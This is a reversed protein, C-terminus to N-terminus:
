VHNCLIAMKVKEKKKCAISNMKMNHEIAFTPNCHPCMYLKGFSREICHLCKDMHHKLNISNNGCDRGCHKCTYIGQNQLQYKHVTLVHTKHEKNTVLEEKCISCKYIRGITFPLVRFDNKGTKNNQEMYVEWSVQQQNACAEHVSAVKSKIEKINSWRNVTKWGRTWSIWTIKCNKWICWEFLM